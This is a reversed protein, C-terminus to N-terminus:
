DLSDEPCPQPDQTQKTSGMRKASSRREQKKLLALGFWIIASEIVLIGGLLASVFAIDHMPTRSFSGLRCGSTLLGIWAFAHAAAVNRVPKRGFIARAFPVLTLMWLISFLAFVGIAWWGTNPMSDAINM